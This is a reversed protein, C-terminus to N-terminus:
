RLQPDHFGKLTNEFFLWYYQEKLYPFGSLTSVTKVCDNKLSVYKVMEEAEFVADELKSRNAADSKGELSTSINSKVKSEDTLNSDKHTRRCARVCPTIAM